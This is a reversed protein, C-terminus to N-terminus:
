IENRDYHPQIKSQQLSCKLNNEAANRKNLMVPELNVYLCWLKLQCCKESVSIHM